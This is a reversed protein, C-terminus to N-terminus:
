KTEIEASKIRNEPNAFEKKAEDNWTGHKQLANWVKMNKSHTLIGIGKEGKGAIENYADVNRIRFDNFSEKLKFDPMSPDILTNPNNVFYSQAKEFQDRPMGDFNGIKWAGLGNHIEVPIKNKSQIIQATQLAREVSSTYIKTVGEKAVTDSAKNVDNAGKDTLNTPETGGVEHSADREDDGHHIITLKEKPTDLKNGQLDKIQMMRNAKQHQTLEM